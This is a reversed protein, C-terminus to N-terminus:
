PSKKTAKVINGRVGFEEMAALIKFVHKADEVQDGHSM